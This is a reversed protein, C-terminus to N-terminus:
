NKKDRMKLFVVFFVIEKVNGIGILINITSLILHLPLSYSLLTPSKVATNKAYLKPVCNKTTKKERKLYKIMVLCVFHM